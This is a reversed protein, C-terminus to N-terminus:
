ERSEDESRDDTLERVYTFDRGERLIRRTTLLIASYEKNGSEDPITYQVDEVLVDGRVPKISIEWATTDNGYDDVLKHFWFDADGVHMAYVGPYNKLSVVDLKHAEIRPTKEWVVRSLTNGTLDDDLIEVGANEAALAQVSPKRKPPPKIPALRGVTTSIHQGNAHLDCRTADDIGM